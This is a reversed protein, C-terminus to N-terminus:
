IVKSITLGDGSPIIVTSLRENHTLYYLYERMRSHITRNRKTVAYRSEIIDGDQLVNDSVITGNDSILELLFPAWNMYQGKAADMFIFDFKENSMVLQNLVDTADGEILRISKTNDYKEFNDKAAKIRVDYNEITTISACPAYNHMLLASFGIATGVELIKAPKQTVILHRIIEQTSKRIIPVYDKIAQEEIDLLYDPFKSGLSNIYKEVREKAIM